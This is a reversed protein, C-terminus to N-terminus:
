CGVPLGGSVIRDLTLSLVRRRSPTLLGRAAISTVNTIVADLETAATGQLQSETHMAAHLSRLYSSYPLAPITLQGRLGALQHAPGATNSRNGGRAPVHNAPWVALLAVSVVLAAAALVIAARRVPMKSRKARPERRTRERRARSRELSEEWLEAQGLDRVPEV